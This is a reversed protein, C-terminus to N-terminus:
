LTRLVDHVSRGIANPKRRRTVPTDYGALPDNGYLADLAAALEDDTLEDLAEDLDPEDVDDFDHPNM